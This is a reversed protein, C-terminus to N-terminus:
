RGAGVQRQGLHLPWPWQWDPDDVGVDVPCQGRSLVVGRHSFPEESDGGELVRRRPHEPGGRCKADSEAVHPPAACWRDLGGCLYWCAGWAGSLFWVTWSVARFGGCARAQRLVSRPVGASCCAAAARRWLHPGVRVLGTVATRPWGTRSARRATVPAPPAASLLGYEANHVSHGTTASPQINARRLLRHGHWPNAPRHVPYGAM